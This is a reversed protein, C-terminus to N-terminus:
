QKPILEFDCHYSEAKNSWTVGYMVGGQRVSVATIFGTDKGIKNAYEVEQELDFKAGKLIKQAKNM